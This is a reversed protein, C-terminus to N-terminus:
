PTTTSTTADTEPTLAEQSQELTREILMQWAINVDNAAVVPFAPLNGLALDLRELTSQLASSEEVPSEDQLTQLLDRAALVDEQAWGFNSQSLYLRARSLLEIARSLMIELRLEALASSGSALSADHEKVTTTLVDLRTQAAELQKLSVTQTALTTELASVRGTTEAIAQADETRGIELETLRAQLDAIQATLLEVDAAQKSEITALRATNAENDSVIYRDYLYPVGFYIAVGVCAIVILVIVVHLTRAFGRGQSSPLSPTTNENSM